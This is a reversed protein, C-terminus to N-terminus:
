PSIPRDPHVSDKSASPPIVVGGEPQGLWWGELRQPWDPRMCPREVLVFFIGSTALIVPTMLILQLFLRLSFPLSAGLMESYRGALSIGYNHLLYISYCMGGVTSVFTLSLFRKLFVGHFAGYFAAFLMFPAVYITVSEFYIGGFVMVGAAIGVADWAIRRPATKEEICFIDALLFGALFYPLQGVLSFRIRPSLPDLWSATAAAILISIAIGCRRITRNRGRLALASIMPALIYFQVEIELSWAVLEIDSPRGYILNHQYFISALLHPLLGAFSGRGRMVNLAFFYFMTLIYPPELRTLRRLYYRRLSPAPKDQLYHGAFPLALVFGSLVFFAQVGFSLHSAIWFAGSSSLSKVYDAPSHNRIHAAVHFIIVSFIAVFRIGDIEPMYVVSTTIRRLQLASIVSRLSHHPEKVGTTQPGNDQLVERSAAKHNLPASTM